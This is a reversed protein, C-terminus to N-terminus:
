TSKAGIGFLLWSLPSRRYRREKPTESRRTCSCLGSICIKGFIPRPRPRSSRSSNRVGPLGGVCSLGRVRAARSQIQKQCEPPMLGRSCGSKSRNTVHGKDPHRHAGALTTSIQRNRVLLHAFRWSSVKGCGCLHRFRKTSFFPGKASMPIDIV